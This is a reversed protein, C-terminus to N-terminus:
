KVLITEGSQGPFGKFLAEAMKASGLSTQAMPSDARVTFAARGEWLAIGGARTRITVTMRTEVLEPPPGSLDIGIGVGVGSGYSGANGGVGVSVPSGARAPQLHRRDLVLVAVQDGSGGGPLPEVYGVRALERAVAGAFARFEMDDPQGAAPEVRITGHGLAGTDAVHFRNVEVPGVPAVCGSLLATALMALTGRRFASAPTQIM